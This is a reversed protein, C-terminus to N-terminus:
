QGKKQSMKKIIPKLDPRSYTAPKVWKGDARKHGGVKTMNSRHIEQFIPEMDLGCSVAAGYVVYLLDGLADAVEVIDKDKFAEKLEKAEERILRVRLRCTARDPVKPTPQRLIDFAEHFQQVMAQEPTM